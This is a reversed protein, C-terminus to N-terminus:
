FHDLKFCRWDGEVGTKSNVAHIDFYCIVSENPIHKKTQATEVQGITRGIIEKNLTGFREVTEGPVAPTVEGTRKNVKAPKDVKKYKFHLIGSALKERIEKASMNTGEAEFLDTFFKSDAKAFENKVVTWGREAAFKDAAKAFQDDSTPSTQTKLFEATLPVNVQCVGNLYKGNKDTQVFAPGVFLGLWMFICYRPEEQAIEKKDVDNKNNSEAIFM